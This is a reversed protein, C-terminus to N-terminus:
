GLGGLEDTNHVYMDMIDDDYYHFISNEYHSIIVGHVGHHSLHM